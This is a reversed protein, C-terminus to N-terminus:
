RFAALTFDVLLAALALVLLGFSVVPLAFSPLGIAPGLRRSDRLLQGGGQGTLSAMVSTGSEYLSVETPRDNVNRKGWVDIPQTLIDQSERGQSSPEGSRATIQLKCPNCQATLDWPVAATWARQEKNLQISASDAVGPQRWNATVSVIPADHNQDLVRIRYRRDTVGMEVHLPHGARQGSPGGHQTFSRWMQVVTNRSLTNSSARWAGAPDSASAVVRGAGLQRMGAVTGFQANPEDLDLLLVRSGPRLRARRRGTQQPLQAAPIARCEDVRRACTPLFHESKYLPQRESAPKVRIAMDQPDVAGAAAANHWQQNDWRWWQHVPIPGFRLVQDEESLSLLKKFNEGHTADTGTLRASLGTEELDVIVLRVGLGIDAFDDLVQRLLSQHCQDVKCMEEWDLVCSDGGSDTIIFASGGGSGGDPRSISRHVLELATCLNTGGFGDGALQNLQRALRGADEEPAALLLPETADDPLRVASDAFAFLNLLDGERLDSITNEVIDAAVRFATSDDTMSPSVDVALTLEISQGMEAHSAPVLPLLAPAFRAVSDLGNPNAGNVVLLQGGSTVYDRLRSVAKADLAVGSGDVLVTAVLAPSLGTGVDLEHSLSSSQFVENWFPRDADSVGLAVVRDTARIRIIAEAGTDTSDLTARLLHFGDPWNSTADASVKCVALADRGAPVDVAPTGATCVLRQQRATAHTFRLESAELSYAGARARATLTLQTGAEASRGSLLDTVQTAGRWGDLPYIHLSQTPFPEVGSLPPVAQGDTMLVIRAGPPQAALWIRGAQLASGIDSGNREGPATASEGLVGQWPAIPGTTSAFSLTHFPSGANDRVLDELVQQVVEREAAVSDSVDVLALVPPARPITQDPQGFAAVALATLASLRLAASLWRFRGDSHAAVWVVTASVVLWLTVIAITM